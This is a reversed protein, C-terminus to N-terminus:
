IIIPNKSVYNKVFERWFAGEKMRANDMEEKIDAMKLKYHDLIQNLGKQFLEWAQLINVRVLPDPNVMSFVMKEFFNCYIFQEFNFIMQNKSQWNNCHKEIDLLPKATLSYDNNNLVEFIVIGANYIDIKLNYDSESEVEPSLYVPTGVLTDTTGDIKKSYGFDNLIPTFTDDIIINEPKVDRHSYDKAHLISIGTLIGQVINVRWSLTSVVPQNLPNSFFARLNGQPFYRTRLAFMRAKGLGDDVMQSCCDDLEMLNTVSNIRSDKIKLGINIEHFAYETLTDSRTLYTKLFFEGNFNFDQRKTNKDEVVIKINQPNTCQKEFYQMCTSDKPEPCIQALISPYQKDRILTDLTKTVLNHLEGHVSALNILLTALILFIIRPNM